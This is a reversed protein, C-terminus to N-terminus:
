PRDTIHGMAIRDIRASIDQLDGPGEYILPGQYGIAQLAAFVEPWQVDGEGLPCFGAATGVTAKFDKLHVRVIRRGLIRIWDQPFGYRLVNGVDFYVGIWPSALRDIFERMEIPSILLQNWVNEVALIVGRSEAEYVLGRLADFARHLAEAYGCLMQGPQQHRAVVGPVILLVEAGLWAARDLAALALTHAEQRVAPDPSSFPKQWFLGTALSGIHIGAERAHDALRRCDSEDTSIALEGEAQLIPELTTFGASRAVVAAQRLEMGAPFTWGNVGKDM